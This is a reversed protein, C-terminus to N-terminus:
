KFVDEVSFHPIKIYIFLKRPNISFDNKLNKITKIKDIYICM